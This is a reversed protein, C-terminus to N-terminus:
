IRLLCLKWGWWMTWLYVPGSTLPLVIYASQFFCCTFVIGAFGWIGSYLGARQFWLSFTGKGNWGYLAVGLWGFAVAFYGALLGFSFNAEWVKKLMVQSSNSIEKGLMPLLTLETSLIIIWMGLSIYFMAAGTKGAKKGFSSSSGALGGLWLFMGLLMLIHDFMWLDSHKFKHYAEEGAFPDVLIPHLITGILIFVGGIIIMFGLLRNGLM